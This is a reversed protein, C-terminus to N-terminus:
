SIKEWWRRTLEQANQPLKKNEAGGWTHVAKGAAQLLLGWGSTSRQQAAEASFLVLAKSCPALVLLHPPLLVPVGMVERDTHQDHICQIGLSTHIDTCVCM